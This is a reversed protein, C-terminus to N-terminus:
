SEWKPRHKKRRRKPAIDREEKNHSTSKHIQRM